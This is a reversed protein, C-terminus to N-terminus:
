AIIGALLAGVCPIGWAWAGYISAKRGEDVRRHGPLTPNEWRCADFFRTGETGWAVARGVQIIQVGIKQDFNELREKVADLTKSAHLM